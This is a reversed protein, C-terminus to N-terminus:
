SNNNRQKVLQPLDENDAIQRVLWDLMKVNAKNDVPADHDKIQIAATNVRSKPAVPKCGLRPM